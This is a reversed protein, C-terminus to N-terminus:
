IVTVAWHSSTVSVSTVDGHQAICAPLLPNTTSIAPGDTFKSAPGDFTRLHPVHAWAVVVGVLLAVLLCKMSSLKITPVVTSLTPRADQSGGKIQYLCSFAHLSLITDARALPRYVIQTAHM